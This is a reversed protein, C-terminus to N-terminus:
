KAWAHEYTSYLTSTTVFLTHYQTSDDFSYKNFVWTKGIREVNENIFLFEFHQGVFKNLSTHSVEM